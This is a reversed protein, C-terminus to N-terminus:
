KGEPWEWTKFRERLTSKQFKGTSTRPVQDIVVMADPLWWKPFRLALHARLDELTLTQGDKLVVAALPREDWKPHPVAVVAAEAIAPHGMIANELEVSSIWEGGSKVLDKTRDTLKIYGDADITVVDGTRFWGDASWRDTAEPAHHYSGTIFPGRVQLEGMTEGDWPAEGGDGVVRADVLPLPLGQKALHRYRDEGELGDLKRKFSHMSGVPTMETMGWGHLAKFGKRELAALLAPPEAAGGVLVRMGKTKPWRGPQAEMAKVVALWVTPVGAAFTVGEDNCLGLLSEADLHPGPFVQKAGLWACAFPEGWANAHFMPVVPMMCERHSIALVDPLAIAFSHLVIARHSYVVGKPKGTTGSTYCMGAADTEAIAPFSLDKPAAAIFSEYDTTAPDPKGNWNVIVVREFPHRIQKALPLLVDDVILIRPKAHGAIYSLDDPSLRLNLTLVVGGACPVGFYAELHIAHNWMLTAVAEGRKLGAKLLASKLAHARAHFERHTHRHISKDPKRSVLETDPFLAGARELMHALTLPVDMTTAHM